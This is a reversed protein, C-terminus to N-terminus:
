DQQRVDRDDLWQRPRRRVYQAYLYPRSLAISAAHRRVRSRLQGHLFARPLEGLRSRTIGALWDVHVYPQTAYVHTDQRHARQSDVSGVIAVGPVDPCAGRRDTPGPLS